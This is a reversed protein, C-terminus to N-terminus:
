NSGVALGGPAGTRKHILGVSVTGGAHAAVPQDALLRYEDVPKASTASRERLNGECRPVGTRHSVPRRIDRHDGPRRATVLLSHAEARVESAGTAWRTEEEVQAQGFNAQRASAAYQPSRSSNQPTKNVPKWSRSGDIRSWLGPWCCDFSRSLKLRNVPM